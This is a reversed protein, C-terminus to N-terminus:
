AQKRSSFLDAEEVSAARYQSDLVDDVTQRGREDLSRYKAIMEIEHETYIEDERTEVDLLWDSKVDLIEVLRKIKYVDPERNGKEYGTLTTKAIGLLEALQAQTYGKNKRAERLKDPFSM